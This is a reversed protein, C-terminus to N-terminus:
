PHVGQFSIEGDGNRDFVKFAELLEQSSNDGAGIYHYMMQVFEAFEISGSGDKDVERIMRRLEEEPPSKGMSCIISRIEGVEISGSNDKDFMRFVDRLEAVGDHGAWQM